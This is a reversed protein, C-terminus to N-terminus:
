ESIELAKNRGLYKFFVLWALSRQGCNSEVARQEPCSTANPNNHVIMKHKEAFDYISPVVNELKRGFTDYVYIVRGEAVVGVWHSGPQGSSDLNM